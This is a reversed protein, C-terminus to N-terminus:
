KSGEIKTPVDNGDTNGKGEKCGVCKIFVEVIDGPEIGHTECIDALAIRNKVQVRREGCNILDSM